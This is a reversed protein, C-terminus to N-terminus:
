EFQAIVSDLVHEDAPKPVHADFGAERTMARHKTDTYATIAILCVHKLQPDSMFTRALTLGDIHPMSLDLLAIQPRFEQAVQIANRADDVFRVDHGLMELLAAITAATDAHDDVVLVRKRVKAQRMPAPKVQETWSPDLDTLIDVLRLFKDEPVIGDGFRWSRVTTESVELRRCLEDLGLHREAIELAKSALPSM